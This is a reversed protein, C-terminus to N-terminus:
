RRGTSTVSGAWREDGGVGAAGDGPGRSGRGALQDLTTGTKTESRDREGRLSHTLLTRHGPGGTGCPSGASKKECVQPEVSDEVSAPNTTWLVLRSRCLDGRAHAWMVGELRDRLDEDYLDAGLGAM